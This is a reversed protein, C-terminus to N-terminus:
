KRETKPNGDLYKYKYLSARIVIKKSCKQRMYQARGPFAM